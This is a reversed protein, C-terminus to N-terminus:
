HWAQVIGEGRPDGFSWAQREEKATPQHGPRGTHGLATTPARPEWRGERVQVIMGGTGVSVTVYGHDRFLRPLSVTGEPANGTLRGAKNRLTEPRYGSLLSSRSPMCLATQCYARRFLLGGSALRDMNPSRVASNGHCGLMPNLDDVAIFLVNPGEPGAARCASVLGLVWLAGIRTM